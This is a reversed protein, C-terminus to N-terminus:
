ELEVGSLSEAWERIQKRKIRTDGDFDIFFRVCTSHAETFTNFESDAVEVDSLDSKNVFVTTNDGVNALGFEEIESIIKNILETKSTAM